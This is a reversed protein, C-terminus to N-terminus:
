AAKLPQRAWDGSVEMRLAAPIDAHVAFVRVTSVVDARNPRKATITLLAGGQGGLIGPHFEADLVTHGDSVQPVGEYGAGGISYSAKAFLQGSSAQIADSLTAGRIMWDAGGFAGAVKWERTNAM